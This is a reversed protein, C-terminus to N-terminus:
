NGNSLGECGAAVHVAATRDRAGATGSAVYAEIAREPLSLVSDSRLPALADGGLEHLALRM